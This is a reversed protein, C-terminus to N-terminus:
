NPNHTIGDRKFAESEFTPCSRKVQNKIWDDIDSEMWAVSRPGLKVSHPFSGRKMRDYIVTKCIGVRTLVEPLRILRSKQRALQNRTSM